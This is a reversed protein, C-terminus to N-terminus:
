VEDLAGVFFIRSPPSSGGRTAESSELDLADVLEAVGAYLDIHIIKFFSPHIIPISGMVELAM